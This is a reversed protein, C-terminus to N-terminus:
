EYEVLSLLYEEGDGIAMYAYGLVFSLGVLRTFVETEQRKKDKLMLLRSYAGDVLERVEVFEDFEDATM